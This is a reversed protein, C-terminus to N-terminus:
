WDLLSIVMFVLFIFIKTNMHLIYINFKRLLQKFTVLLYHDLPYDKLYAEKSRINQDKFDNIFACKIHTSNFAKYSIAALYSFYNSMNMERNLCLFYPFLSFFFLM